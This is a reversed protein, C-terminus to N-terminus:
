PAMRYVSLCFQQTSPCGSGTTKASCLDRDREHHMHLPSDNPVSLARKGNDVQLGVGPLQLSEDQGAAPCTLPGRHTPPCTVEAWGERALARGSPRMCGLCAPTSSHPGRGTDQWAPLPAIEADYRGGSGELHILCEIDSALRPREPLVNQSHHVTGGHPLGKSCSASTSPVVPHNNTGVLTLVILPFM